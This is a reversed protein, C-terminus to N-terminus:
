SKKLFFRCDRRKNKNKHGSVPVQLGRGYYHHLRLHMAISIIGVIAMVVGDVLWINKQRGLMNVNKWYCWLGEGRIFHKKREFTARTPGGHKQIVRNGLSSNIPGSIPVTGMGPCHLNKTMVKRTSVSYLTGLQYHLSCSTMSIRLQHSNERVQLPFQHMPSFTLGVPLSLPFFLKLLTRLPCQWCEMCIGRPIWKVM